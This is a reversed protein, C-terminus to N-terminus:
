VGKKSFFNGITNGSSGSQEAAINGGINKINIGYPPTKLFNIMNQAACIMDTHMIYYYFELFKNIDFDCYCNENSVVMRVGEKCTGDAYDIIIPSFRIFVNNNFPIEVPTYKGKLVMRNNNDLKFMTKEGFFWPLVLETLAKQVVFMDKPYIIAYSSKNVSDEILFWCDIFRKTSIMNKEQAENYYYYENVNSGGKGQQNKYVMNVVLSLRFNKDFQMLIDSIRAYDLFSIPQVM